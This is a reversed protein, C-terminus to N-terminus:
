TVPAPAAKPERAESAHLGVRARMRAVYDVLRRLRQAHAKLPTDNPTYLVSEVFAYLTCDYSTPADGFLFPGEGLTTALADLDAAGLRYIEDRDHRGIGQAYMTKQVKRRILPPVFPRLPAPLLGRFLGQVHAWGEDEGWRSYLLAWYLSDECTRRVLHGQAHEAPSLRGDLPDGFTQKCYEIIFGSDGIRREGHAIWPAKGKPSRRIDGVVSRYEIDALRLYAELKVCFPSASSLGWGGPLQYLTIM